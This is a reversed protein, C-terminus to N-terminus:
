TVYRSGYMDENNASGWDRKALDAADACDGGAWHFAFEEEDESRSGPDEDYYGSPSMGAGGSAERNVYQCWAANHQEFRFAKIQEAWTPTGGEPSAGAFEGAFEAVVQLTMSAQNVVAPNRARQAFRMICPAMETCQLVVDRSEEHVLLCEFTHLLQLIIEEDERKQVLMDQLMTPLRSEAVLQAAERCLGINGLLMVCELVIDDESFGAVLLRHLLDILGAECLEAWPIEPMTLNALTGLVEVLLDSNDVFHLAMRVFETTWRSMRVEEGQLMEVMTEVVGKHSSVHRIVKCLLPDNTKLLRLMVSPFYGSKVMFEACRPHTALNVVLAVLDKGVRQEPFHVVLQLLMTMGDQYYAMLSKCRDDMSFHYLLRIALQRFPPKQLHDVLIKLFMSEVLSARVTEDFSLNYLTRLALKAIAMNQHNSLAVLRALTDPVNILDKNEEFISLKKLFQLAILLVEEHTRELLAILFLPMKRNCMKREISIDEALNMLVMQCVQMLKCQKNLQTKYKTEDKFLQRRDESTSAEALEQVRRIKKEIDEKRVQHRQSEYEVVRMTVDGCQNRMMVPHFLKFHSFCLFTCVIAICLENSKKFSERLERSLVGLLTDHESLFELNRAETCVRLICKAGHVKLKPDDEYLQDLYEDIFRMNADPLLPEQRAPPKRSAAM